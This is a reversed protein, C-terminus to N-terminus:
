RRRLSPLSDLTTSRTPKTVYRPAIHKTNWRTFLHKAHNCLKSLVSMLRKLATAVSQFSILVLWCLSNWEVSSGSAIGADISSRRPHHHQLGNWACKKMWKHLTQCPKLQYLADRPGEATKGQLKWEQMKWERMKLARLSKGSKSVGIQRRFPSAQAV